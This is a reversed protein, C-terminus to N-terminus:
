NGLRKRIYLGKTGWCKKGEDLVLGCESDKDKVVSKLVVTECVNVIGKSAMIAITSGSTDM